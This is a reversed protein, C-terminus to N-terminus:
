ESLLLGHIAAGVRKVFFRKIAAWSRATMGAPYVPDKEADDFYTLARMVPYLDGESVQYRRVYAKAIEEISIGSEILVKLDWFDRRIGRRAVAALKMVALDIRSAVRYGGPGPAPAELLPYPYSVVDILTGGLELKIAADSVSLIEVGAIKKLAREVRVLNMNSESFLDLDNSRRHHLHWGIASGGALYFSQLEAVKTLEALAREQAKALGTPKGM